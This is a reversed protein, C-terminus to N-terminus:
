PREKALIFANVLKVLDLAPEIGRQQFAVNLVGLRLCVFDHLVGYRVKRDVAYLRACSPLSMIADREQHKSEEIIAALEKLDEIIAVVVM